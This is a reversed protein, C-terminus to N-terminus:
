EGKLTRMTANMEAWNCLAVRKRGREGVGYIKGFLALTRAQPTDEYQARLSRGLTLIEGVQFEKKTLIADPDQASHRVRDALGSGIGRVAQAQEKTEIRYNLDPRTTTLGDSVIPCIAGM